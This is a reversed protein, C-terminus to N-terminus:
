SMKWCHFDILLERMIRSHLLSSSNCLRSVLILCCFKIYLEKLSSSKSLVRVEIHIKVVFSFRLNNELKGKHPFGGSVISLNNVYRLDSLNM